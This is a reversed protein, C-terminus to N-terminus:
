LLTTGFFKALDCCAPLFALLNPSNPLGGPAVRGLCNLPKALVRSSMRVVVM